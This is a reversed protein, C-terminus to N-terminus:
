RQQSLVTMYTVANFVPKLLELIIQFTAESVMLLVPKALDSYMM